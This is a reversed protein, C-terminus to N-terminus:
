LKFKFDVIFFANDQAFSKDYDVEVYPIVTFKDNVKYELGVYTQLHSYGVDKSTYTYQWHPELTVFPKGGLLTLYSPAYGFSPRYRFINDKEERIRHEFKHNFWFGHLRFGKKQVRFWHEQLEGKHVNRYELRYPSDKFDKRIMYQQVDKDIHQRTGFSYGSESHKIWTNTEVYDFDKAEAFTATLLLMIIIIYKM